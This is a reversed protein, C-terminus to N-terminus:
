ATRNRETEKMTSLHMTNKYLADYSGRTQPTDSTFPHSSVSLTFTGTRETEVDELWSRLCELGDAVEVTGGSGNDM